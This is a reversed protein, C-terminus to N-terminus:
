RTIWFRVLLVLRKPPGCLMEIVRVYAYVKNPTCVFIKVHKVRALGYQVARVRIRVRFGLGLRLVRVILVTCPSSAMQELTFHTFKGM